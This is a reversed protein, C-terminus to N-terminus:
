ASDDELVRVSIFGKPEHTLQDVIAGSYVGPPHGDPVNVVLTARGDKVVFQVDQLPEKGRGPGRASHLPPVVPSFSDPSSRLDYSVQAKKGKTEVSVVGGPSGLGSRPGAMRRVADVMDVGLVAFEKSLKLARTLCEKLDDDFNAATYHGDHVRQAARRGQEIHDDVVKYALEVARSIVKRHAATANGSTGRNPGFRGPPPRRAQIKPAAM